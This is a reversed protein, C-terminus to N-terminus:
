HSTPEERTLAIAHRLVPLLVELCERVAKPSGPLNVILSRGRTGAIGRSIMAMPTKELSRMRMAEAIGPVEREVVIRTAEPTVDTPSLGTGGTTVILPVGEEDVWRRLVTTIADVEDPVTEAHAYALGAGCLLDRAAPGSMDERWGEAAGTSITLVAFTYHPEEDPM